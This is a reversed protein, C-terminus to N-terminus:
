TLDTLAALLADIDDSTTYRVIGARVAGGRERLGLADILECAYNDGSWVAIRRQALERAVWDPDRGDINFITTPARGGSSQPAHVVVKPIARLGSELRGLLAAEAGVVENWPQEAM